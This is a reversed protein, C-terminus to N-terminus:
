FIIETSLGLFFECRSLGFVGAPGRRLLRHHRPLRCREGAEGDRLGSHRGGGPPLECPRPEFFLLFDLMALVGQYTSVHVLVQPKGRTLKSGYGCENCCAATIKETAWLVQFLFPEGKPAM